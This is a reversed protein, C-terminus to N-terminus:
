RMFVRQDMPHKKKPDDPDPIALQERSPGLNAGGYRVLGLTPSFWWYTEIENVTIKVHTCTGEESEDSDSRDIEVPGTRDHAIATTSIVQGHANYVGSQAQEETLAGLIFTAQSTNWHWQMPAQPQVPLLHLYEPQPSGMNGVLTTVMVVRTPFM